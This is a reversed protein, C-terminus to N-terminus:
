CAGLQQNRSPGPFIRLSRIKVRTLASSSRFVPIYKTWGRKRTGVGDVALIATSPHCSAPYAPRGRFGISSVSPKKLALSPKTSLRPSGESSSILPSRVRATAWTALWSGVASTAARPSAASCRRACSSIRGRCCRRSTATGRGTSSARRPQCACRSGRWASAPDPGVACDDMVPAHTVM